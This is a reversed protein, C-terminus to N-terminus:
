SRADLVGKGLEEGPIEESAPTNFIKRRRGSGGDDIKDINNEIFKLLQIAETSNNGYFGKSIRYTLVREKLELLVFVVIGIITVIPSFGWFYGVSAGLFIMLVSLFKVKLFTKKEYLLYLESITKRKLLEQEKKLNDEHKAKIEQLKIRYEESKIYNLTNRYLFSCVMGIMSGIVSIVGQNSIGLLGMVKGFIVAAIIALMLGVFWGFHRNLFKMM